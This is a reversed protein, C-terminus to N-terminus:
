GRKRAEEIKQRFQNLDIAGRVLEGNIIFGPTGRVGVAQGLQLNKQIHEAYEPKQMENKFEETNLGLESVLSIIQEENRPTQQMAKTHFDFFKGPALKYFALAAKAITHSQESLIPFDKFVVKLKDDESLLTMLDPVVRKCYGCNYDFFEVIIVDGDKNGSFPTAPDSEIEDRRGSIEKSAKAVEEQEQQIQAEQFANVILTPNNKLVDYVAKEIDTGGSSEKGVLLATISSTAIIALVIVAAFLARVTSNNM